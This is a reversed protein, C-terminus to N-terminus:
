KIFGPVKAPIGAFILAVGGSSAAIIAFAIEEASPTNAAVPFSEIRHSTM